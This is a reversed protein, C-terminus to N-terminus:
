KVLSRERLDLAKVIALAESACANLAADLDGAALASLGEVKAGLEGISAEIRAEADEAGPRGFRTASSAREELRRLADACAKFAAEPGKGKVAGLSDRASRVELAPKYVMARLAANSKEEDRRTNGVAALAGVIGLAVITEASLLTAYLAVKGSALFITLVVALAYPMLVFSISPYVAMSMSGRVRPFFPLAAYLALLAELVCAIIISANWTSSRAAPEVFLGPLAITAAVAALALVLCLLIPFVRPKESTM